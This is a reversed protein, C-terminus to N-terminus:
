VPQNEGAGVVLSPLEGALLQRRLDLIRQEEGADGARAAAPLDDEGITGGLVRFDVPAEQAQSPGSPRKCGRGATIPRSSGKGASGRVSGQAMATAEFFM